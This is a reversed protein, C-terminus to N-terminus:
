PLGPLTDALVELVHRYAHGTARTMGLECTRNLSAHAVSGGAAVEAAEPATASATLEPHLMGRDGAFACCGWDDPVHVEDAAAAAVRALAPNIGMRTSSCTPHITLSAVRDGAPLRELVVEDVFQVADLVRIGADGAAELLVELGETCSSADCVVPLRGERTAARLSAAVRDKMAAYGDTLGKSKWPTGCCLSPIDAPTALPVDARACLERFSESAGRAGPEAPGFMTTTCSPFYVAVAGPETFPRRKAGGAPLDGSYKPVVDDGLVARAVTTAAAPLAGPVADAVSLAMGGVRSVTGWQKAALTWGAQALANQNEARLRRVLDGTNILVPCATQCMGDVACTQVGDYDYESRLQEALATDGAAEARAMERRLVIRERPTLTLDKSPCVPECYGCEVCRDVEEEVTHVIKLDRVHASPDEALLVGPNLLGEPDVLAKLERMVDYLEDGYQRRVFPAMIRGTGHEAKLTGGQSLVLEVMEETFAEYRLLSRPDDFRENLLFHINGDKAHGFIVSDEYGHRDFLEILSTCTDLLREVPVAIDELLATTGSPRAGAVATFLGKRIHWLQARIAPDTTLVAPVALELASLLPGSASVLEDLGGATEAQHEVLLAAHGAVELGRLEATADPDRQAVRLSTADMLEIAAFGAAVLAPLAATAADLTPFVLLGTAVHTPMPVTRFTAEAVFALTGESGIVLHELIDIARDHDVFSNLGYGMTNKIAYLKEITRLSAPDARVRDRLALLGTHIRPERARLIEDADPSSTDIVTGSPLVLVASDLTRYTNAHTGCCMGSSNNAVVGGITCAIESAPDPGIKRGHRALRLNVARVTAGPGTQVRAGDDLVTIGRFHTRTDILVGGTGAQGSLSTGGSRFTVPVGSEHAARMTAAVDSADKAKVVAQPTLLYHSGDHAAALRDTARTRVDVGATGLNRLLEAAPAPLTATGTPDM